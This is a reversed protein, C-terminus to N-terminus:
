AAILFLYNNRKKHGEVEGRDEWLYNEKDKERQISFFHFHFLFHFSRTENFSSILDKKTNEQDPEVYKGEELVSLFDGEKGEKKFEFSGNERKEEREDEKKLFSVPLFISHRLIFLQTGLVILPFHPFM